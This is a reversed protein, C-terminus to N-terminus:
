QFLFASNGYKKTAAGLLLFGNNEGKQLIELKVFMEYPEPLRLIILYLLCAVFLYKTVFIGYKFYVM